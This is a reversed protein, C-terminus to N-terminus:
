GQYARFAYVQARNLGHTGRIELELVKTSLPDFEHIRFGQHNDTVFALEDWKSENNQALLRYSRVISTIKNWPSAAPRQPFRYELSADFVIEVRGIRKPENWRLEIWEPYKFDTPQSIWLNPLHTPRTEPQIVNEGSYVQQEPQIKFCLSSAPGPAAPLVPQLETYPNRPGIGGRKMVQRMAGVPANESLQPVISPNGAIRLFHWGPRVSQSEFPFEVWQQKEKAAMVKTEALAKDPFTSGNAPGAFLTAKLEADESLDLLVSVSDISTTNVPFQCIVDEDSAPIPRSASECSCTPLVSSVAVEAETAIDDPDSCAAMWVDHNRRLLSARLAAADGERALSKPVRNSLAAKAAAVGIAEGVSASTLPAQLSYSVNASVSAHGGAIFLNKLKKAYLSRLPIAFPGPQEVHGLPSTTFTDTGAFGAGGSAVSDHFPTQKEIDEVSLVHDGRVRRTPTAQLISSIWALDYHSSRESFRSHNKVFDWAAYAIERADPPPAEPIEGAWEVPLVEEPKALFAEAFAVRPAVENQEWDIRTWEPRRFPADKGMNRAQLYTVLRSGERWVGLRDDEAEEEPLMEAEVLNALNAEGTADVFTHGRFKETSRGLMGHGVLSEVRDGRDNKTATTVTVGEFLDLRPERRVLDRLVRDWIEYSGIADLRLRDLMIEDILGTERGYAFNCHDAGLLPARADPGVRGGLQERAEVLATLAGERAATVAACIGALGAGIVVVDHRNSRKM